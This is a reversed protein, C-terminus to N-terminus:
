SQTPQLPETFIADYEITVSALVSTAITTDAAVYLVFFIGTAPNASATGRLTDDNMVNPVSQFDATKMSQIFWQPVPGGGANAGGICGWQVNGAEILRSWSSLASSQRQVAVAARVVNATDAPRFQVLVRSGLVTYHQFFTSLQDFGMPQHGTGSIDPDYLGNGTFAYANPTVGYGKIEIEDSYRLQCRHQLPFVNLLRGKMLAAYPMNANATPIVSGETAAGRKVKYPAYRGQKRRMKSKLNAKSM